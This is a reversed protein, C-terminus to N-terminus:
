GAHYGNSGACYRVGANCLASCIVNEEENGSELADLVELSAKYDVLVGAMAERQSRMSELQVKYNEMQAIGMQLERSSTNNEPTEM